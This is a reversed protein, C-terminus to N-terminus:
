SFGCQVNIWKLTEDLHSLGFHKAINKFLQLKTRFRDLPVDNVYSGSCECYKNMNRRKVLKCKTCNFDQLVNAMCQKQIHRILLQEIKSKSYQNGCNNCNWFKNPLSQSNFTLDQCLDLNSTTNCGNCLMESVTFAMSPNVFEASSSFQGINLIRLLDLKLDAVKDTINSDLSLVHCVTKALELAPDTLTLYSGPLQLFQVADHNNSGAYDHHRLSSILQYMRPGIDETMMAACFESVIPQMTNEALVQTKQSNLKRVPTYGSQSKALDVEVLHNYVSVVYSSIINHFAKQCQGVVPLYHQINWNTQLREQLEQVPDLEVALSEPPKVHKSLDVDEMLLYDKCDNAMDETLYAAIGSYNAKDMWLLCNWAQTFKFSTSKYLQKGSIATLIYDTYSLADEVSPKKTNIVIRRLDAYIVVAGLRKFENLLQAFVKRTITHVLKKLAPDYLLASPDLLWRHFHEIQEAALPNEYKVVECLWSNLMAKMIRFASSCLATEDYFSTNAATKGQLMSDLSQQPLQDFNGQGESDTIVSGQLISNVVLYQINIDVCVSLYFGPVNLSIHDDIDCVALRKDDVQTGGLDPTDTLSCWLVHNEKALHRAYFLDCAFLEADAPLNGIPIHLYRCQEVNVSLTYFARLYYQFVYKVALKQWDLVHYSEAQTKHLTVLPFEDTIPLAAHWQNVDLNASQVLVVTPGRKEDKYRAILKNLARQILKLNTEISVEFDHNKPPLHESEQDALTYEQEFLNKLNPMNNTRVSDMAFIHAKCQSPIFLGYIEKGSSANHYLYIYQLINDELYPCQALTKFMLHQVDFSETERHGYTKKHQSGVTCVCGLRTLLRFMSPTNTEYIGTIDPNCLEATIESIHGSYFDEPIINEYLHAVPHSRPLARNVKRWRPGDERPVKYNVYFM